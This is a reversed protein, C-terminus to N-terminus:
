PIDPVLEPYARRLLWAAEKEPKWTHETKGRRMLGGKGHPLSYNMQRAPQGTYERHTGIMEACLAGHSVLIRTVKKLKNLFPKECAVGLREALGEVFNVDHDYFGMLSFTEGQTHALELVLALAIESEPM